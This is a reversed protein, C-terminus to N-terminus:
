KGDNIKALADEAELKELKNQSKIEKFDV